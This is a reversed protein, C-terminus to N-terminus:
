RLRRGVFVGPSVDEGKWTGDVLRDAAETMTAAYISCRINPDADELEGGRIELRRAEYDHTAAAVYERGGTGNSGEWDFYGKFKKPPYVDADDAELVLVAKWDTGTDDRGEIQWIGAPNPEAWADGGSLGVFSVVALARVLTRFILVFPM